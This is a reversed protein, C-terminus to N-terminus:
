PLNGETDLSHLQALAHTLDNHLRPIRRQRAPAHAWRQHSLLERGACLVAAVWFAAKAAPDGFAAKAAPLVTSRDAVRDGLLVWLLAHDYGPLRRALFELDILALPGGDPPVLINGPHGDGFELRTPLQRAIDFAASATALQAPNLLHLAALQTPYDSDDPWTGDPQWRHIAGLTDLLAKLATTPLPVRPYREPALPEGALRSIVLVPAAEDAGLLDPMPVPRPQGHLLRYVGIEHRARELWFPRRDTPVKAYAPRNHATGPVLLSTETALPDGLPTFGPTCARARAVTYATVSATPAPIM